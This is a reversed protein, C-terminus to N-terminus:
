HNSDFRKISDLIELCVFYYKIYFYYFYHNRSAYISLPTLQQALAPVTELDLYLFRLCESDNKVTPLQPTMAPPESSGEKKKNKKLTKKTSNWIM